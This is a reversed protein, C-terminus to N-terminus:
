EGGGRMRLASPIPRSVALIECAVTKGIELLDGGIGHLVQMHGPGQMQAPDFAAANLAM